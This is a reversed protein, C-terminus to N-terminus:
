VARAVPAQRTRRIAAADGALAGLVAVGWDIVPGGWRHPWLLWAVAVVLWSAYLLVCDRLHQHLRPAVGPRARRARLGVALGAAGAFLLYLTYIVATAGAAGLPHATWQQVADITVLARALNLAATAAVFVSALMVVPVVVSVPRNM